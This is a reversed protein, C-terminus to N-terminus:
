TTKHYVTKLTFKPVDFQWENAEYICKGTLGPICCKGEPGRIDLRVVLGHSSDETLTSTGKCTGDHNLCTANRFRVLEKQVAFPADGQMYDYPNSYFQSQPQSVYQQPQPYMQQQPQYQYYQQPMFPYYPQPSYYSPSQNYQHAMRGAHYYQGASSAVLIAILCLSFM